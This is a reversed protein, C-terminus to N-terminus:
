SVRPVDIVQHNPLTREWDRITEALKVVLATGGTVQLLRGIPTSRLGPVRSVLPASVILGTALTRRLRRGTPSDLFDLVEDVSAEVRDAIEQLTHAM